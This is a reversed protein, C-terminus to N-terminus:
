QMYFYMSKVLNKLLYELVSLKLIALITWFHGTAWSRIIEISTVNGEQLSIHPGSMEWAKQIPVNLVRNPKQIMFNLLDNDGNERRATVYAWLDHRSKIGYELIFDTVLVLSLKPRKAALASDAVPTSDM